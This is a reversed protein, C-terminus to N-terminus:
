RRIDPTHSPMDRRLCRLLRLVESQLSASRLGSPPDRLWFSLALPATCALPRGDQPTVSLFEQRLVTIGYRPLLLSCGSVMLWLRFSVCHLFQDNGCEGESKGCREFGCRERLETGADDVIRRLRGVGNRLDFVFLSGDGVLELLDLLSLLDKGVGDLNRRCRQLGVVRGLLLVLEHM